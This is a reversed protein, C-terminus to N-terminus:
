FAVSRFMQKAIYLKLIIVILNRNAIERWLSSHWGRQTSWINAWANEDVSRKMKRCSQERSIIWAITLVYSIQKILVLWMSFYLFFVQTTKNYSKLFDKMQENQMQLMQDQLVHIKFIPIKFILIKFFLIQSLFLVQSIDGGGFM